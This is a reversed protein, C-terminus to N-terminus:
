TDASMPNGSVRTFFPKCVAALDAEQTETVFVIDLHQHRGFMAAFIHGVEEVLDRSPGDLKRICLAVSMSSQNAIVALYARDVSPRLAFLDSFQV